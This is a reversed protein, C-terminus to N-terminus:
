FVLDGKAGIIAIDVWSSGSRKDSGFDVMYGGLDFERLQELGRRVGEPSADKSKRVAEAILKAAVYGELNFYTPADKSKAYKDFDSRFQKILPISRNNPNPMVQAIAFGRAHQAGAFKIVVKPDAYSASFLPANVDVARLQRTIEGISNSPGLFIIADPQAAQMAKVQPGYNANVAIEYLGSGALKLGQKQLADEVNAAGEKGNPNNPAVVAIKKIGVTTLQHVIKNMQDRDSARIHFVNKYQKTRYSDQSPIAGLIPMGVNDLVGQKILYGMNASGLTPLLASVKGEMAAILKATEEPKFQDDATVLRMKRGLVGGQDNIADIFVQAGQGMEVATKSVPGTYGAVHGIALEKAQAHAPPSFLGALTLALALSHTTKSTLKTEQM